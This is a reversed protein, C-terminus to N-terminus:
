RLRAHYKLRPARWRVKTKADDAACTLQAWIAGNWVYQEVNPKTM